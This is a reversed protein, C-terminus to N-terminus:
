THLTHVVQTGVISYRLVEAHLTRIIVDDFSLAPPLVVSSTAVSSDHLIITMNMQMPSKEDMIALSKLLM